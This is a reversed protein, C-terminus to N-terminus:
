VTSGPHSIVREKDGVGSVAMLVEFDDTTEIANWGNVVGDGISLLDLREKKLEM